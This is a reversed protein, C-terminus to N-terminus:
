PPHDRVYQRDAASLRALPVKSTRGDATKLTVADSDAQILTAQTRFRGDASTWTRLRGAAPSESEAPTPREARSDESATPASEGPSALHDRLDWVAVRMEGGADAVVRDGKEYHKITILQGSATFALPIVPPPQWLLEHVPGLFRTNDERLIARRRGVRVDWVEV